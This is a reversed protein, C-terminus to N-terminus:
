TTYKTGREQEPIHIRCKYTHREYMCRASTLICEIFSDANALITFLNQRLSFLFGIRHNKNTPALPRLKMLFKINKESIAYEIRITLVPPFLAFSRAQLEGRIHQSIKANHHKSVVRHSQSVNKMASCHSLLRHVHLHLKM